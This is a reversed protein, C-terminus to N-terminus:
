LKLAQKSQANLDLIGSFSNQVRHLNKAVAFNRAEVPFAKVTIDIEQSLYTAIAPLQSTSSDLSMLLPEILAGCQMRAYHRLADLVKKFDSEALGYRTSGSTFMAELDQRCLTQDPDTCGLESMARILLLGPHEPFSELFRILPRMFM